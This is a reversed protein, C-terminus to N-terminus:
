EQQLSRIPTGRLALRTALWTFFLGSLLLALLTVGITIVPIDTARQQLSPLVAIIGSFAGGILGLVLLLGHEALLIRIIARPTFGIARLLALEARRELVNRMVLIGLGATGLVLGLSGLVLFINLYTNQVQNFAQLRETTTMVQIGLDRLADNLLQAIEDAQEPPCDILLMRYGAEQPFQRVFNDESIIVNGQMISNGIAGQLQVQFAEGQGDLYTLTDGLSKGLAWMMSAQDIIAPITEEQESQLIQWPNESAPPSLTEAFVFPTERELMYPPDIGLLQPTQARNLNLCSADDGTRVRIPVFATGQPFDAQTLGFRNLGEETNLDHLLPVTLDAFLTFGGTGSDRQTPDDAPSMQNSGVALVLFSGCALLAIASLSRGRRRASNRIGLDRQSLQEPHSAIALRALATQCLGLVAILLLTGVGFFAGAAAGADRTDTLGILLFALAGAVVAIAYGLGGRKGPPSFASSLAEHGPTLLVRAPLSAQKRLAWQIAVWSMVVSSVLGIALDAYALHFAIRASAVAGQWVNSLAWLIAQTYGIAFLVGLVSGALALLLGEIVYMRRVQKATMGISLLLGTQEQRQEISFLFLLGTLLLAAVILFFSLGIFLPGFDIAQASANLAQERVPLFALGQAAPNISEKLAAALQAESWNQSPYRIGTLSGFRNAWMSQGADLTFFAKPAGGYEDWYAEDKDRILDLDIVFGPDWDRCNETGSIGPFDPMLNPDMHAGQMPLVDALTFARSAEQLKRMPGFLYYSVTIEDGPQVGLDDATWQNLVIEDEQLNAPLWAPPPTASAVEPTAALPGLSSVISYPTTNGNAELTNVMYSFVGLAQEDLAAAREAIRDTLFVQDTRLEICGQEPRELLNLQLDDIQWTQRLANQAQSRTIEQHSAAPALLLLNARDAQEIEQQLWSLSVFANNPPIQNARLNFIGMEASEAIAKITVRLTATLSEDSSLPAERSLTAPNEVRLLLTDGEGVQLSEALRANIIVEEENLPLSQPPTEGRQWFREDVGLVNIQNARRRTEPHVASGPLQLAAAAEAPLSQAVEAALQDRFFREPTNIAYHVDGLRALAIDRLTADVSSGVLLAGTLVATAIMVGIIVGLHSRWYFTAGRWALLWRKM